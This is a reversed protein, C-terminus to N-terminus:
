EEKVNEAATNAAEQAIEEITPKRYSTNGSFTQSYFDTINM